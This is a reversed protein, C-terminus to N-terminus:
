LSSGASCFRVDLFGQRISTPAPACSWFDPCERLPAIVDRPFRSEQHGGDIQPPHQSLLADYADPFHDSQRL